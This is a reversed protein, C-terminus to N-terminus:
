GKKEQNNNLQNNINLQQVDFDKKKGRLYDAGWKTTYSYLKWGKKIRIAVIVLIIIIGGIIGLGGLLEYLLIIGTTWAVTVLITKIWAKLVPKERVYIKYM